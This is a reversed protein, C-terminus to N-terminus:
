FRDVIVKTIQNQVHTYLDEINVLQKSVNQFGNLGGISNTPYNGKKEGTDFSIIGKDLNTPTFCIGITKDQFKGFFHVNNRLGMPILTKEEWKVNPFKRVILDIIPSLLNETWASNDYAKDLRKQLREIQQKRHLIRDKLYNTKEQKEKYSKQIETLTM